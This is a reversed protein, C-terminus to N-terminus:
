ECDCAFGEQKLYDEYEKYSNYKTHFALFQHQYLWDLALGFVVGETNDDTIKIKEFNEM